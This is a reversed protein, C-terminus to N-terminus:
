VQSTVLDVRQSKEVVRVLKWRKTKSMPRCQMVEVTDGIHSENHEDHIQLTTRHSVFKGYKPHMTKSAVVVTRTKSRKDSEVTGVKTSVTKTASSPM